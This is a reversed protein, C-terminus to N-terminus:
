TEMVGNYFRHQVSILVFITLLAFISKSLSTTYNLWAHRTKWTNIEYKSLSIGVMSQIAHM